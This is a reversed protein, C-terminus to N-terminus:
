EIEYYMELADEGNDHYYNKKIYSDKFGIKRYLNKAPTNSVRVELTLQNLDIKKAIEITQQILFHAFGQKKYPSKSAINTIHLSDQRISLAIFALGEGYHSLMLFASQSNQLENYVTLRSWPAKGGYASEQIEMIGEVDLSSGIHFDVARGNRMVYHDEKLMSEDICQPYIMKEVEAKKKLFWDSFRKLWTAEKLM